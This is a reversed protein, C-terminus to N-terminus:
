DIAYEVDDDGMDYQEELNLSVDKEGVDYSKAIGGRRKRRSSPAEQIEPEDEGDYFGNAEQGEELMMDQLLERADTDEENPQDGSTHTQGPRVGSQMLVSIEKALQLLNIIHEPNGSVIEEGRIHSLDYNLIEESLLEILAQINEAM